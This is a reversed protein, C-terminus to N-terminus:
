PLKGADKGPGHPPEPQPSFGAKAVGLPDSGGGLLVSGLHVHYGAKDLLAAPEGRAGCDGCLLKIGEILVPAPIVPLIHHALGSESSADRFLSKRTFSLGPHSLSNPITYGGYLPTFPKCLTFPKSGMEVNKLNNETVHPFLPFQRM